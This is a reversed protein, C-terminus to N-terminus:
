YKLASPPEREMPLQRAVAGGVPQWVLTYVASSCSFALLKVVDLFSKPLADADVIISPRVSPCVSLGVSWLM